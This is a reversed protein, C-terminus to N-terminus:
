MRQLDTRSAIGTRFYICSLLNEVTRPSIGLAAAIRKNSFGEKVYKLVEAERSTLLKQVDTIKKLRPEVAKDISVEGRLVALLVTELEAESRFKCVYGSVGFGLAANAHVCDDFQTYVVVPPTKKGYRERLWPILDLGLTEEPLTGDSSSQLQIDLLLIDPLAAKQSLLERAEALGAAIGFIRWRGTGAFWAALGKRMVPHDEVIVISNM